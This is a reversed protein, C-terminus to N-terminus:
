LAFYCLLLSWALADKGKGMALSDQPIGERSSDPPDPPFPLVRSMQGVEVMM